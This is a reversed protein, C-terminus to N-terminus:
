ITIAITTALSQGDVQFYNAAKLLESIWAGTNASHGSYPPNGLIVMVPSDRKVSSAANAENSLWESLRTTQKGHAEDLTNTLFM